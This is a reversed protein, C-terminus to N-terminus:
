LCAHGDYELCRRCCLVRPSGQCQALEGQLDQLRATALASSGLVAEAATETLLAETSSSVLEMLEGVRDHGAAIQVLPEAAQWRAVAAEAAELRAALQAARSREADAQQQMEALAHDAADCRRQAAESAAHAAALLELQKLVDICPQRFRVAVQLQGM